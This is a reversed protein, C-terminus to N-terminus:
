PCAIPAVTARALETKDAANRMVMTKGAGMWPGTEKSGQGGAAAFMGESGDSELAVIEVSTVGPYISADWHVTVVDKSSGCASLAAPEFWLGTRAAAPGPAPVPSTALAADVAAVAQAPVTDAAPAAATDPASPKCGALAVALALLLIPTPRM